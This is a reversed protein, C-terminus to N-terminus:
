GKPNRIGEEEEKAEKAGGGANRSDLYSKWRAETECVLEPVLERFPITARVEAFLSKDSEWRKATNVASEIRAKNNVAEGVGMNVVVKVLRPLMMPNAYGFEKQLAPVVKERYKAQM